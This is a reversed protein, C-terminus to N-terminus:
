GDNVFRREIEYRLVASRVNATDRVTDFKASHVGIVTLEAGFEQEIKPLDPIIHMCNICCFASFDVLIIRGALDDASLARSTNLWDSEQTLAQHIATSRFKKVEAVALGGIFLYCILFVCYKM